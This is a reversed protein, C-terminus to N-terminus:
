KELWLFLTESSECLKNKFNFVCYQKLSVSVVHLILNVFAKTIDTTSYPPTTYPGHKDAASFYLTLFNLISTNRIRNTHRSPFVYCGEYSM